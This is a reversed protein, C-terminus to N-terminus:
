RGWMAGFAAIGVAFGALAVFAYATASPFPNTKTFGFFSNANAAHLIAGTILAPALLPRPLFPVALLVFFAAEVLFALPGRRWLGLGVKRDRGFGLVPLDPLHVVADLLWHSVSGVWFLLGAAVSGFLLAFVLAPLIALGGTLVLSHSYPYSDFRLSSQRPSAPDVRVKEKGALVLVPWLLDPFSVGALVPLAPVGPDAAILLNAIAFHGIFM